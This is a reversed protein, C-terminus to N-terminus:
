GDNKKKKKEKRGETETVREVRTDGKLLERLVAATVM